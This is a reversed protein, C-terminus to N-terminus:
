TRYSGHVKFNLVTCGVCMNMIYHKFIYYCMIYNYLTIYLIYLCMNCVTNFHGRVLWCMGWFIGWWLDLEKQNATKWDWCSCPTQDAQHDRRNAKQLRIAVSPFWHSPPKLFRTLVWLHPINCRAHTLFSWSISECTLRLAHKSAYSAIRFHIPQHKVLKTVHLTANTRLLAGLHLFCYQGKVLSKTIGDRRTEIQLRQAIWLTQGGNLPMPCVYICM